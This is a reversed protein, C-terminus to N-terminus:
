SYIFYAYSYARTASYDGFVQAKGAADICFAKLRPNFIWRQM